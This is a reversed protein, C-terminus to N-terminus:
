NQMSKMPFLDARMSLQRQYKLRISHQETRNPAAM